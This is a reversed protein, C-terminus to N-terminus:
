KLIVDMNKSVSYMYLLFATALNNQIISGVVWWNITHTCILHRINVTLVLYFLSANSIMDADVFAYSTGPLIFSAEAYSMGGAMCM